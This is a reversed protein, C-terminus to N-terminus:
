CVHTAAGECWTEVDGFSYHACVSIDTYSQGLSDRRHIVDVGVPSPIGPGEGSADFTSPGSVHYTFTAVLCRGSGYDYYVGCGCDGAGKDACSSLIANQLAVYGFCDMIGDNWVAYTGALECGDPSPNSAASCEVPRAFNAACTPGTASDSFWTNVADWIDTYQPIQTAGAATCGIDFKWDTGEVRRSVNSWEQPMSRVANVVDNWSPNRRAFTLDPADLPGPAAAALGVATAISFLKLALM